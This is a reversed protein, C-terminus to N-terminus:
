ERRHGNRAAGVAHVVTNYDARLAARIERTSMPTTKALYAARAPVSQCWPPFTPPAADAVPWGDWAARASNAPPSITDLGTRDLLYMAEYGHDNVIAAAPYSLGPLATLIARRRDADSEDRMVLQTIAARDLAFRTFNERKAGSMGLDDVLASQVLLWISISTKRAGSGLAEAFLEWPNVAKRSGRYALAFHDHALNAEDMIVTLRPFHHQDLERGMERKYQERYTLREKYLAVVARMADEVDQWNEGGGVGPLEFWGNSHPDIVFVQEGNAIRPKLGSKAITSKGGGTRAAFLAHPQADLWALWQERPLPGVNPGAEIVEAEIMAPTQTPANTLTYAAVNPLARNAYAYQVRLAGDIVPRANLQWIPVRFGGPQEVLVLRRLVFLVALTAAGWSLRLGWGSALWARVDSSILWGAVLVFVCIVACVRWDLRPIHRPTGWPAADRPGTPPLKDVDDRQITIPGASM